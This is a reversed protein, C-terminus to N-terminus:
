AIVWGCSIAFNIVVQTALQARPSAQNPYLFVDGSHFPKPYKISFRWASAAFEATFVACHVIYGTPILPRTTTAPSLKSSRAVAFSAIKDRLKVVAVNLIGHHYRFGMFLVTHAHVPSTLSILSM